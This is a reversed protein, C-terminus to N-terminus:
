QEVLEVRRNKARGEETKNPAVPVLQGVGYAKLNQPNVKYKTALAKVVADARAQSLKMNYDFGGVNDTHGVVYLKLKADQSLLKAIEKLSPDSEPKVEAKNSDFYIGYIAVKGTTSIDQAMTKADAVVEQVMAQREVITLFIEDGGYSQTAVEAWIEKGGKVLKLDVMYNEIEYAKGGIGKIANMYNRTVQLSSRKGEFEPQACYKIMYKHGEVKVSKGGQDPDRFEVMDFESEECRNIYVNPMRSFLPHDKCGKADKEAAWVISTSLLLGLFLLLM